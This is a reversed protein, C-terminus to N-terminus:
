AHLTTGWFSTSTGDWDALGQILPSPQLNYDALRSLDAWIFTLHSELSPPSDATNLDVVDAKFLLNIEHHDRRDEPWIHEVAGIFGEVVADRGIEERIERKLATEAREGSDIHGGPLFTNDAGVQRALLIQGHKVIVGRVLYHFTM